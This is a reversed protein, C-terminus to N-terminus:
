DKDGSSGARFKSFQEKASFIDIAGSNESKLKPYKVRTHFIAVLDSVFSEQIKHLDKLTLDCEDLQGDIFKDNIIKRVAQRLNEATPEEVSRSAAEVSDALMVVATERSQPKPGPYRFDDAHIQEGSKAQDMAKRYFYYIVGTGQHEPIFNLIQEKLQHKRGLEIGGKVHDLIIRCSEKPPLAQHLSKLKPNSNESFYESEAIKGIDHFYAGVRALLANAGIAECAFESIRSVVLSHHYTGPAEVIMRKLLPHNLDSLELLTVDTIRNFLTEFLPLVLFTLPITVLVGNALGLVSRELADTASFGSFVYYSFLVAFYSISIVLGVRLFHIRKRVLRASLIGFFGSILMALLIDPSFDHLCGVCVTVAILTIFALRPYSLLTLLLAGLAGPMLYASSQPLFQIMRSFLVTMLISFLVLNYVRLSRFVKPEALRLHLFVLLYVMVVLLFTASLKHLLRAESSKKRIQLIREMQDPTVIMGRSVILEDKKVRTKVPEVSDAAKKQLALTESEDFTLNVALLQRNIEDYLTRFNKNRRLTYPLQDASNELLEEYVFFSAIERRTRKNLQPNVVTVDNKEESSLRDKEQRSLIGQSFLKSIQATLDEKLEAPNKESILYQFAEQSVPIKLQDRTVAGGQAALARLEEIQTFWEAIRESRINSISEDFRYVPLIKDTKRKQLLLTAETDTYEVSVPSFLTRPAPNGVAYEQDTMQFDPVGTLVLSTVVAAGLALFCRSLLLRWNM